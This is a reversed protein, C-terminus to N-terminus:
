PHAGFPAMEEAARLPDTAGDDRVVARPHVEALTSRGKRSPKARCARRNEFALARSPQNASRLRFCTRPPGEPRAENAIRAGDVACGSGVERRLEPRVAWPRRATM